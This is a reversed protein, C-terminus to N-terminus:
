RRMSAPATWPASRWSGAGMSIPAGCPFACVYHTVGTQFVSSTGGDEGEGWSVRIPVCAKWNFKWPRSGCGFTQVIFWNARRKVRKTGQGFVQVRSVSISNESLWDPQFSTRPTNVRPFCRRRSLQCCLRAVCKDRLLIKLPRAHFGSFSVTCCCVSKFFFLRKFYKNDSNCVYSVDSIM